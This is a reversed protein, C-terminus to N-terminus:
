ISMKETLFIIDFLFETGLKQYEPDLTKQSEKKSSQESGNCKNLSEPM